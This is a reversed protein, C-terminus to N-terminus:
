IKYGEETTYKINIMEEIIQKILLDNTTNYNKQDVLEKLKQELESPNKYSFQEPKSKPRGRGRKPKILKM